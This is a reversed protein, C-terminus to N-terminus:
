SKLRETEELLFIIKRGNPALWYYLVVPRTM